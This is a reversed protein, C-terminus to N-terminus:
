GLQCCRVQYVKKESGLFDIERVMQEKEEIWNASTMRLNSLEEAAKKLSVEFDNARQKESDFKSEL